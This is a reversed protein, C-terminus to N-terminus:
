GGILSIMAMVFCGFAAIGLVTVLIRWARFEIEEWDMM